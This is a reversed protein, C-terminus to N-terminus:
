EMTQEPGNDRHYNIFKEIRKADFDDFKDIYTWATLAITTDLQPRPVVLLKFLKNKRAVDELQKVLEKCAITDNIASGTAITPDVFVAGATAEEEGEHAYVRSILSHQISFSSYKANPMLLEANTNLHVNCNYSIVIYGHELSHILEGESQPTDYIGPKVWTPLHPGSTPPNSNYAFSAVEETTVHEQGQNEMKTGPIPQTTVMYLGVGSAIVLFGLIGHWLKM